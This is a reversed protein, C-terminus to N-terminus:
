ESQYLVGSVLVKRLITQQSFEAGAYLTGYVACNCLLPRRQFLARVAQM